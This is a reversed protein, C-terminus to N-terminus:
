VPKSVYGYMDMLYKHLNEKYVEYVFWLLQYNIKM